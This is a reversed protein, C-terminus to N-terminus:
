TAHYRDVNPVVKTKAFKWINNIAVSPASITDPAIAMFAAEKLKSKDSNGREGLAYDVLSSLYIEMTVFKDDHALPHAQTM